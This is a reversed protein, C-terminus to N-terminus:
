EATALAIWELQRSSERSLDIALQDGETPM